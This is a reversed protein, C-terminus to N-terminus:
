RSMRLRRPRRQVRAALEPADVGLMGALQAEVRERGAGLDRLVRAAVGEGEHVLALLLHETGVRNHSLAKAERRAGELVRKARPAVGLCEWERPAGAGVIERIKERVAEASVDLAALAHAGLGEREALLGLLMHETGLYNHGLERAEREATVMVRRSADGFGEPWVGAPAPGAVFRQQAAQKTIGFGGGIESWSCGAARAEGVVEDLLQDSLVRAREAVDVAAALRELPSAQPGVADLAERLQELTPLGDAAV